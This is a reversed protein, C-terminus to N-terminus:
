QRFHDWGKAKISELRGDRDIKVGFSTEKMEGIVSVPIDSNLHQVKEEDESPITFLLEYEEGSSLVAGTVDRGTQDSLCESHVPLREAVMKCGTGSERCLHHIEGALGDSIDIMAHIDVAESLDKALQLRPCPRLFKDVAGTRKRASPGHHLMEFGVLSGGLNGSVCILDGPRAGSRTVYRDREVEGLVTLSLMVPRPSGTTDGGIIPCKYRESCSQLGKYLLDVQDSTWDKPLALSIVAGIPDAAMAALDSLNVALAKWGLDELTTYRFDFHVNQVLADTTVVIQTGPRPTLVAADDGISLPIGTDSGALLGRIRDIM